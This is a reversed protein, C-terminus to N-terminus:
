LNSVVSDLRVTTVAFCASNSSILKSYKKRKVGLLLNVHKREMDKGRKMKMSMMM